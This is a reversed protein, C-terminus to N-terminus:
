NESSETSLSDTQARTSDLNRNMLRYKLSRFRMDSPYIQLASDLLALSKLREGLYLWSISKIFMAQSAYPSDSSVKDLFAIAKYYDRNKFYFDGIEAFLNDNSPFSALVSAYVKEARPVQRIKALFRAWFRLLHPDHPFKKRASLLQAQYILMPVRDGQHQFYLRALPTESLYISSSDRVLKMWSLTDGISLNRLTYVYARDTPSLGVKLSKALYYNAMKTQATQAYIEALLIWLGPASFGAEELSKADKLAETYEELHFHIQASLYLFDLDGSEIQLARQIDESALLYKRQTFYAKSRIYYLTSSPKDEIIASVYQIVRQPDEGKLFASAPPIKEGKSDQNTECSMLFIGLVMLTIWYIVLIRYRNSSSVM